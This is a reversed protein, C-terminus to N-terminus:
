IQLRNNRGQETGNNDKKPSLQSVMRAQQKIKVPALMEDSEGDRKAMSSSFHAERSAQM